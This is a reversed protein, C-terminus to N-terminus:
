PSLVTVTGKMGPHLNCRYSYTGVQDFTYRFTGDTQIESAFDHGAVDHAVGGAWKWTVTTGAEVAVDTPDFNQAELVVIPGEDADPPAPEPSAQAGSVCATLAITMAVAAVFGGIHYKGIASTNSRQM